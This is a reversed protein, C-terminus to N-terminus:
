GLPLEADALGVDSRSQLVELARNTEKKAGAFACLVGSPTGLSRETKPRLHTTNLSKLESIM